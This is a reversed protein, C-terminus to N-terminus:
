MKKDPDDWDTGRGGGRATGREEVHAEERRVEASATRQEEYPTKRVRVEERIMPRKTIEVEEEMVPVVVKEEQFRVDGPTTQSAPVREM